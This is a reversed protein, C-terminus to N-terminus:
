IYTNYFFNITMSMKPLAYKWCFNTMSTLTKLYKKEWFGDFLNIFIWSDPIHRFIITASLLWDCLVCSGSSLVALGYRERERERLRWAVSCRQPAATLQSLWLSRLSRLSTKYRWWLGPCGWRRRLSTPPASVDRVSTRRSDCWLCCWLHGPYCDPLYRSM